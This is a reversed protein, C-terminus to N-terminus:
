CTLLIFSNRIYVFTKILQQGLDFLSGDIFKPKRGGSTRQPAAVPSLFAATGPHFNNVGEAFLGVAALAERVGFPSPACPSPRYDGAKFGSDGTQHLGM